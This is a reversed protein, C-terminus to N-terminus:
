FLPTPSETVFRSKIPLKIAPPVKEYSRKFQASRIFRMDSPTLTQL